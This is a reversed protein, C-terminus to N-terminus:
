SRKTVVVRPKGVHHVVTEGSASTSDDSKVHQGHKAGTAVSIGLRTSIATEVLHETEATLATTLETVVADEKFADTKGGMTFDASGSGTTTVTDASKRSIKGTSTIKDFITGSVDMVTRAGKFLWNAVSAASAELKRLPSAAADAAGQEGKSDSSKGGLGADWTVAEVHDTESGGGTRSAWESISTIVKKVSTSLSTRFDTTLNNRLQDRKSADVQTTNVVSLDSDVTSGSEGAHTQTWTTKVDETVTPDITALFTSDADAVYEGADASERHTAAKAAAPTLTVTVTREPHSARIEDALTQEIAAYDGRDQVLEHLRSETARTVTTLEGKGLKGSINVKVGFASQKAYRVAASAAGAGKAVQATGLTVAGSLADNGGKLYAATKGTNPQIKFQDVIMQQDSRGAIGKTSGGATHYDVLWTTNVLNSASAFVRDPDSAPQTREVDSGPAQDQKAVAPAAPQSMQKPEATM